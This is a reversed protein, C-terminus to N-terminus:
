WTQGRLKTHEQHEKTPKAADWFCRLQLQLLGLLLAAPLLGLCWACGKGLQWEKAASHLSLHLFTRNHPVCMARPCVVSLLGWPLVPMSWSFDPRWGTPIGGLLQQGKVSHQYLEEGKLRIGSKCSGGLRQQGKFYKAQRSSEKLDTIRYISSYDYLCVCSGEGLCIFQDM